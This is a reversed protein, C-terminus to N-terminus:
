TLGYLSAISNQVLNGSTTFLLISTIAATSRWHVTSHRVEMGGSATSMVLCSRAVVIKEWTTGSYYPIEVIVSSALGAADSAGTMDGIRGSAQAQGQGSSTTTANGFTYQEDYNSGTDGNLQIKIYQDTSANDHRGLVTLYLSRYRQDIGSFPINAQGGVGVVVEGIKRLADLESMLHEEM